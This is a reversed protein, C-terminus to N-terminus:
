RRILSRNRLQRRDIPLSVRPAFAAAVYAVDDSAATGGIAFDASGPILQRIVESYFAGLDHDHITECNANPTFAAPSAGGGYLAGIAIAFRGQYQLTVTPNAQDASVSDSDIAELQGGTPAVLSVCVFHIDDTTASALDVSVTQTGTPIGAGLFWLEAAGPETLTDTARVIRTMAVGGYTVGVVHDTASVGHVAAVVIGAPTSAPTHNFTYPDETGTRVAETAADFAVPVPGLMFNDFVYSPSSAVLGVRGSRYTDDSASLIESYAGAGVKRHVSLTSGSRKVLITDGAGITPGSATDLSTPVNDDARELEWAATDAIYHFVYGDVNADGIPSAGDHDRILFKIFFESGAPPANGLTLAAEFVDGSVIGDNGSPRWYSGWYSGGTGTLQNSSRQGRETLGGFGGWNGGESVPSENAGTFASALTAYDGAAM